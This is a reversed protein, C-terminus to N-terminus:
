AIIDTAVLGTSDVGTLVIVEDAEGSLNRDIFLWAEDGTTGDSVLVYRVTQDMADNAAILAADFNTAAGNNDDGNLAVFNDVTGAVGLQIRDNDATNFDTITDATAVAIGSDGVAFVFTDAGDGGTLTDAGLGGVLTDDGDGGIIEDDGAGGNVFVARTSASLDIIDDGFGGLVSAAAGTTTVNKAVLELDGTLTSADVTSGAALILETGATTADGIFVDGAGQIKGIVALSADAIVLESDEDVEITGFTFKGDASESDLALDVFGEIVLKHAGGNTVAGFIGLEANAYTQPADLEDGVITITSTPNVDGAKFVLEVTMTSGQADWYRGQVTASGAAPDLLDPGPNSLSIYEAGAALNFTITEDQTQATPTAPNIGLLTSDEGLNVELEGEKALLGFGNLIVTPANAGGAVNFEGVTLSSGTTRTADIRIIKSAETSAINLSDIVVDGDLKLAVASDDNTTFSLSPITGSKITLPLATTIKSSSIETEDLNFSLATGTGDPTYTIEKVNALAGVVADIQPQLMESADVVADKAVALLAAIEPSFVNKTIVLNTIEDVSDIEAAVANLQDADMGQANVKATAAPLAEAKGLLAEIEAPSFDKTITLNTIDGADVVGSEEIIAAAVAKLQEPSMNRADVTAKNGTDVKSMLAEIEAASLKNDIPLNAIGEDDIKDIQAAIAKLQEPSMNQADVTVSEDKAKGLLATINAANFPSVAEIELNDIEGINAIGTILAAIFGDAADMNVADVQANSAKSLLAGVEARTLLGGGADTAIQVDTLSGAAFKSINAAVDQLDTLALTGAAIVSVVAGTNLAAPLVAVDLLQEVTLTLNTGLKFEYTSVLPDATQDVVFNDAGRLVDFQALTLTGLNAGDVNSLSYDLEADELFARAAFLNAFTDEITVASLDVDNRAQNAIAVVEQADAVKIDAFDPAAPDELEFVLKSLTVGNLELLELIDDVDVEALAAAESVAVVRIRGAGALFPAAEASTLNDFTDAINFRAPLVFDEAPDDLQDVTFSQVVNSETVTLSSKADELAENVATFFATLEAETVPAAFEFNLGGTLKELKDALAEVLAITAASANDLEVTLSGKGAFSEFDALQDLLAILGSNLTVTEFGEVPETVKTIDLTGGSVTLSSRTDGDGELVSDPDLVLTGGSAPFAFELNRLGTGQVTDILFEKSTDTVQIVVKGDGQFTAADEAQDQTLTLTVNRSITFASGDLDVEAISLGTLDLNDAVTGTLLSLTGGGSISVTEQLTVLEAPDLELTYGTPVVVSNTNETLQPNLTAFTEDKTLTFTTPDTVVTGDGGAGSAGGGAAVGGSGGSSGGSAAAVLALGGLAIVWAPLGAAAAGGGAAGAAAQTLLMQAGDTNAMDMLSAQEAHSYYVLESGDALTMGTPTDAGITFSGSESDGVTVSCNDGECVDYFNEFELVTGDVFKLVLNQGVRLAVVNGSDKAKAELLDQVRLHQGKEIKIVQQAGTELSQPAVQIGTIQKAM